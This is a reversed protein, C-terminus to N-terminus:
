CYFQQSNKFNLNSCDHGLFCASQEEVAFQVTIIILVHPIHSVSLSSLSHWSESFLMQALDSDCSLNLDMKVFRVLMNVITLKKPTFPCVARAFRMSPRKTSIHLFVVQRQHLM